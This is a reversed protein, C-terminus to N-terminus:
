SAGNGANGEITHEFLKGTQRFRSKLPKICWAFYSIFLCDRSEAMSRFEFCRSVSGNSLDSSDVLFRDNIIMSLRRLVM